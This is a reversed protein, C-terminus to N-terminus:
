GCFQVGGDRVYRSGWWGIKPNRLRNLLIDMMARKLRPDWRYYSPWGRVILRGLNEMSENLERANDRGARAVDSVM